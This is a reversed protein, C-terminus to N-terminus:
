EAALGAVLTELKDVQASRDLFESYARTAGQILQEYYVVRANLSDLQRRVMDPEDNMQTIPRGLVFVVQIAPKVDAGDQVRICKELAAKYKYGQETLEFISLPRSARKLEVIIHQGANHRYRIDLRGKSQEDTLDTAFEGYDTRLRQEMRESGTAREWGPDLLWMNDFLSKQLVKEKANDDVLGTFAKIVALRERVIDRYMSGELAGLDSLLPLITEATLENMQGLIHSAERLRMREFALVGAKYLNRRDEQKEVEVGGILGLMQRAAPRQGDPLGELWQELVPSSEVVEVARYQNRLRTWEESAELLTKRLFVLLAIYREDDEILRQRDSTAIDAQQEVDLFDAEVQGTVYNGFLRNFDLKDLINEQILRGRAVVVIGNMSGADEKRLDTPRPAAGLWGRVKWGRAADVDADMVSAHKLVPCQKKLEDREEGFTWLFELGKLDDRDDPGIPNGNIEVNFSDGAESKFGIISFRRALRKRLAQESALMRRRKLSTLEIRTGAAPGAFEIKQPRYRGGPVSIASEIASTSMFFGHSEGNRSTHISVEEAISFLSLKGIGKRGMYLRGRPSRGGETERKDYGVLLFRKNIVELDMGLGDDEILVRDPEIVVRVNSADADWANAVAESLVAAANSYLRLGLHDLVRMDIQMVYPSESTLDNQDLQSDNM